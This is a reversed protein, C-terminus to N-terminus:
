SASSRVSCANRWAYLCKSRARRSDSPRGIRGQSIMERGLIHAEDFRQNHGIMLNRRAKRAELVMAECEQLSVAMPKECLVHKGARLAAISVEAHAANAVCVSVADIAPDALMQELSDYVRGGFQLAMAQAQERKNDFFGMITVRKNDSYEPAHRIRTIMGSGIIGVRLM